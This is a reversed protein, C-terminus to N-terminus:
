DLRTALLWWNPHAAAIRDTAADRDAESDFLAFCTAGSGSMRTLSAGPKLAALVDGIMPAIAIAAPELDNRGDAPNEPLPGGDGGGWGRFVDATSVPVGPNVLLLPTGRLAPGHYAELRDGRGRGVCTRSILCAPVDAGLGSALDRLGEESADIAWFRNLLRLAAAADASGGGIGAAVPLCKDLILAGGRTVAFRDRLARAARLVLNDEGALLGAAFQGEIRLTLDASELVRLVDGDAAFAFVTEIRHYGDPERGRVHLALNIKARALEEM